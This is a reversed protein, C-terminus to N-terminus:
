VEDEVEVMVFHFTKKGDKIFIAFNPVNNRKVVTVIKRLSPSIFAVLKDVESLEKAIIEEKTIFPSELM